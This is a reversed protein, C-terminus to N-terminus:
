DDGPKPKVALVACPAQLLVEQANSGLVLKGVPSRRRVGIVILDADHEEAATVLDQAPSQGRAYEVMRHTIGEAELRKTLREFEERYEMVEDLENRTGGRMSHIVLLEGDSRRTEEVARDLAAQGEPSRLYGVVIRM